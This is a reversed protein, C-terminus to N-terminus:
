RTSTSRLPETQGSVNKHYQDERGVYFNESFRTPRIGNGDLQFKIDGGWIMGGGGWATDPLARLSGDESYYFYEDKAWGDELSSSTQLIGSAPIRCIYVGNSMELPPAGEGHEIEVWGVYGQPILFKTPHRAIPSGGMSIAVFFWLSLWWLGTMLCTGVGLWRTRGAGVASLVLGALTPWFLLFALIKIAAVGLHQSIDVSIWSLHLALLAGVAVASSGIGAITLYNRTARPKRELPPTKILKWCIRCLLILWAALLIVALGLWRGSMVM